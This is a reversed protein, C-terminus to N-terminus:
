SSSLVRFAQTFIALFIVFRAEFKIVVFVAKIM